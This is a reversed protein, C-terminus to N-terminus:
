DGGTRLDRLSEFADLVARTNPFEGYPVTETGGDWYLVRIADGETIPRELLIPTQGTGAEWERWAIEEEPSRLVIGRDVAFLRRPLRRVGVAGPGDYDDPLADTLDEPWPPAGDAVAARYADRFVQAADAHPVVYGLYIFSEAGVEEVVSPDAGNGLRQILARADPRRPSVVMAPNELFDPFISAADFFLVGPAAACPPPWGDNANAHLVFALGMEQMTKVLAAVARAEARIRAVQFGIIVIAVLAAVGIVRGVWVRMRDSSEADV